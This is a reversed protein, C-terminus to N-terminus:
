KLRVPHTPAFLTDDALVLVPGDVHHITGYEDIADSEIYWVAELPVLENNENFMEVSINGYEQVADQLKKIMQRALM